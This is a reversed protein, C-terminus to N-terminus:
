CNAFCTLGAAWTARTPFICWTRETLALTAPRCTIWVISLVFQFVVLGKRFFLAGASFRLAGKLVKIPQLSSLFLAPYSGAVFGTALLLCLLDIWFVPSAWPLGLQKGTLRGFAPLALAALVLALLGAFFTILMAEGIFQGILAWRPAGVTKRIGVEKARRISRATALNMFNICAILLIFVAVVSFLRVYEIRGGAPRGDRFTANLYKQDYRQLGLELHYGAGYHGLYPMIFGKIKEEVRAPDANPQLQIFTAPSRNMWDKLWGITDLAFDWNLLYDFKEASNAPVDEFVASVRFSRVDDYRISQGFAAAPSGFFNDAMRRSIAIDDRGALAAGARGELVPYSFIRLFDSDAYAGQMSMNKEGVGFLADDGRNWYSSSYRIEPIRRKLERALLGPTWYAGEVKGASFVREYVDYLDKSHEHFSDMRREDQVWLFILLSCAMGLALGAINIVSFAKNRRLNRFALTLNPITM